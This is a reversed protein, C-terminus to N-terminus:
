LVRQYEESLEDWIYSLCLQERLIYKDGCLSYYYCTEKYEHFNDDIYKKHIVTLFTNKCYELYDLYVTYKSFVSGGLLLERSSSTSSYECCKMKPLDFGLGAVLDYLKRKKLKKLM